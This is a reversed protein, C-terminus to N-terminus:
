LNIQSSAFAAVPLMCIAVDDDDDDCPPCVPERECRIANRQTAEAEFGFCLALQALPDNPGDLSAKGQEIGAARDKSWKRNQKVNKLCGLYIECDRSGLFCNRTTKQEEKNKFNSNIRNM